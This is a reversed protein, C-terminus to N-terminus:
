VEPFLSERPFLPEWDRGAPVPFTLVDFLGAGAQRLMEYVGQGGGVLPGKLSAMYFPDAEAGAQIINKPVLFCSSAIYFIGRALKQVPNRGFTSKQVEGTEPFGEAAHSLPAFVVFFSAALGACITFIFRRNMKM